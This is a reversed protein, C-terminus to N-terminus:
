GYTYMVGLDYQAGAHGQAAALRCWKLAEAYDQPVSWRACEFLFIRNRNLTM